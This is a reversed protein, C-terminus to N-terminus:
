AHGGEKPPLQPLPKGEATAHMIRRVGLAQDPVPKPSWEHGAGCRYIRRGTVPPDSKMTAPKGHCAPCRRGFEIEDLMLVHRAFGRLLIPAVADLVDTVLYWTDQLSIAPARRDAAELAAIRAEEHWDPM